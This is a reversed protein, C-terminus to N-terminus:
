APVSVVVRSVRAKWMKATASGIAKEADVSWVVEGTSERKVDAIMARIVIPTHSMEGVPTGAEALADCVHDLRMSTVWETAIAEAALLVVLKEPDVVPRPNAVESFAEGKHKAIVREGNNMRVEILPRIVIGERPHNDGMGRRKAVESPADRQADLAPVDAPVRVFPVFELGLKEVVDAAQPVSLWNPGTETEIKVEFAIFRMEAGYVTKMKQQSGGYAEGFVMVKPQGIAKFRDALDQDFISSFTAHKAGGAFFGVAGDNWSVHASTGHVKEMAYVERFLLVHQGEPRYLNEIHMYSM